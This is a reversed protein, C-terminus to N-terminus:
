ICAIKEKIRSAIHVSLKGHSPLECINRDNLLEKSALHDQLCVIGPLTQGTPYFKKNTVFKFSRLDESCLVRAKSIVLLAVIHPDDFDPDPEIEVNKNELKDITNDDFAHVKNCRSLEALFPVFSPINKQIEKNYKTGGIVIKAKGFLLWDLVCEYKDHNANSAKFIVPILNTDILMCM